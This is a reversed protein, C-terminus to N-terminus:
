PLSAPKWGVKDVPSHRFGNGKDAMGWFGFLFTQGWGNTVMWDELIEASEGGESKCSGAKLWHM